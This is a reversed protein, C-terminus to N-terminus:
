VSVLQKKFTDSLKGCLIELEELTNVHRPLVNDLEVDAQNVSTVARLLQRMEAVTEELRQIRVLSRRELSLTLNIIISYYCAIDHSVLFRIRVYCSYIFAVFIYLHLLVIEGPWQHYNIVPDRYRNRTWPMSRRVLQGAQGAPRSM